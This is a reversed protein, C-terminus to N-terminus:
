SPILILTAVGGAGVALRGVEGMRGLTRDPATASLVQENSSNSYLSQYRLIEDIVFQYFEVETLLSTTWDPHGGATM